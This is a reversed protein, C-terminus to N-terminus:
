NLLIDISRIDNAYLGFMGRPQLEVRVNGTHHFADEVQHKIDQHARAELCGHFVAFALFGFAINKLGDDMPNGKANNVSIRKGFRMM